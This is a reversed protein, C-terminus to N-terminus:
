RNVEEAYVQNLVTEVRGYQGRGLMMRLDDIEDSSSVYDDEVLGDILAHKYVAWPGMEWVEASRLLYDGERNEDIERMEDLVDGISPTVKIKSSLRERAEQLKEETTQSRIQNQM